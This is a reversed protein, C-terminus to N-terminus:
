AAEHAAHAEEEALKRDREVPEGRQLERCAWYAIGATLFPGGLAAVRFFWIQASYSINFLVDIRDASGAVFILLVWTVM